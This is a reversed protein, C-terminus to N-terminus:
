AEATEKGAARVGQNRGAREWEVPWRVFVVLGSADQPGLEVEAGAMQAARRVLPLGMGSEHRLIDFVHSRAEEPIGPGDDSVELVLREGIVGTVNIYVCGSNPQHHHRVANDILNRLVLEFPVRCIPVVLDEGVIEVRFGQPLDRVDVISQILARVAVDEVPSEDYGVRSYQLLDELLNETKSVRKSIEELRRRTEGRLRHGEDEIIWHVLNGIGRIPSKLDHSAAHAFSDLEENRRQLEVALEERRLVNERFMETMESLLGLEDTGKRTVRSSLDGACLHEVELTLRNLRRLVSGRVYFIAIALTVLLSFCAVALLNRRTKRSTARIEERSREYAARASEVLDRSTALSEEAAGSFVEQIELLKTSNEIQRKRLEFVGSPGQCYELIALLQSAIAERADGQIDILASTIEGAELQFPGEIADVAAASKAGTVARLNTALLLSSSRMQLAAYAPASDSGGAEYRTRIALPEIADALRRAVTSADELATAFSDSTRIRELHLRQLSELCRELQGLEPLAGQTAEKFEDGKLQELVEIVGSSAQGLSALESQLTTEDRIRSLSEAHQITTRLEDALSRTLRVPILSEFAREESEAIQRFGGFAIAVCLLSLALVAAFAALLRTGLGRASM